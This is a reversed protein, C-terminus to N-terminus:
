SRGLSSKSSIYRQVQEDNGTSIMGETGTRGALIISAYVGICANVM